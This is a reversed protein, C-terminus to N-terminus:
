WVFPILRKTRAQYSLYENPFLELMIKEEKKIRFSFMFFAILFLAIGFSTGSLATGLAALIIGTYIPHRVLRYPGSTVLEHNEKVAPAYSWNRGLNVRAWVAFIVGLVVFVAAIWGLATPPVFVSNRFVRAVAISYSDTGATAKVIVFVVLAAGVIKLILYRYFVGYVGGGRIDRKVGFSAIVWVFALAVWSGLIVTEYNM